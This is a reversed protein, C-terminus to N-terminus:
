EGDAGFIDGGEEVAKRLQEKLIEAEDLSSEKFMTQLEKDQEYKEPNQVRDSFAQDGIIFTVAAVTTAAGGDEAPVQAFGYGQMYLGLKQAAQEIGDLRPQMEAMFEEPDPQNTNSM